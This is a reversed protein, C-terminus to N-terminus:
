QGLQLNCIKWQHYLEQRNQSMFIDNIQRIGDGETSSLSSRATFVYLCLLLSLRLFQRRAELWGM